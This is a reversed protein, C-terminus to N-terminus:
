FGHVAVSAAFALVGMWGFTTPLAAFLGAVVPMRRLTSLAIAAVAVAPKIFIEFILVIRWAVDGEQIQLGHSAVSPMMNAWELLAIAALCYLAPRLQGKGLHVLASLALVPRLAIYALIIWGGPGASTNETWNVALAPLAMLGGLLESLTVLLLLIRLWRPMTFNHEALPASADSDM